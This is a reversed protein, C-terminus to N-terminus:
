MVKISRLCINKGPFDVPTRVQELMSAQMTANNAQSIAEKAMERNKGTKNRLYGTAVSLNNLRIMMDMQKDELETLKEHM